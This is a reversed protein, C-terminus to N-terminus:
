RCLGSAGGGAGRGRALNAFHPRRRAYGPTLGARELAAAPASGKGRYRVVFRMLPEPSQCDSVRSIRASASVRAPNNLLMAVIANSRIRAADRELGSRPRAGVGLGQGRGGDGGPVGDVDREHRCLRGTRDLDRGCRARHRRDRTRHQHLGGRLEEQGERVPGGGIGCGDHRVPLNGQARQSVRRRVASVGGASPRRGDNGAAVISVTGALYADSIAAKTAADRPGGGLSMNVLDCGAEMARDIAKIISFNSAGEGLNFVRYSFLTTGPALGRLGSPM